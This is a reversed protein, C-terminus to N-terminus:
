VSNFATTPALARCKTIISNPGMQPGCAADIWAIHVGTFTEVYPVADRTVIILTELLSM